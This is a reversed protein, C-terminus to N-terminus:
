SLKSKLIQRTAFQSQYRAQVSRDHADDVQPAQVVELVTEALIEAQDAPLNLVEFCAALTALLVTEDFGSTIGLLDNPTKGLAKAVAALRLWQVVSEGRQLRQIADPTLDLRKAFEEVTLGSEERALRIRRGIETEQDSLKALNRVM